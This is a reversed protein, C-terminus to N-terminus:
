TDFSSLKGVINENITIINRKVIDQSIKSHCCNHETDELEKISILAYTWLNCNQIVNLRNNADNVLSLMVFDFEDLSYCIHGTHNKNVNKASNRRTTEFHIQQSHATKGNVQRLKSQVRIHKKTPTIILLDFGQANNSINVGYDGNKLEDVKNEETM